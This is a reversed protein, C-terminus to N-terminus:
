PKRPAKTFLGRFEHLENDRTDSGALYQELLPQISFTWLGELPGLAEGNPKWLIQRRPPRSNPWTQNVLFPLDGFFAHGLQYSRGLDPAETIAANLGEINAILHELQETVEDHGVKPKEKAWEAEWIARLAEADFAAEFWLFRRRLAFDLSEVSHDIENMTGIIYLNEPLTLSLHRGNADTAPLEVPQGRKDAEMASFAEGLMASLDTRNIEDLILVHPLPQLGPEPPSGMNNVLDLLIGNRYETQGNEGLQLGTIFASYDIGPHLQLRTVHSQVLEDMRGLRPFYNEAGWEKLASQRLLTEALRQAQYTKGTGPPGYFVIQKKWRLASLPTLSQARENPPRWIHQLTTSYYDREAEGGPLVEELKLRIGYLKKDILEDQSGEYLDEFAHLIQEKHNSSSIREFYEPYLLHCIVHRMADTPEDTDETFERLEWPNDDLLHDRHEPALAKFRQCFDLLNAVQRDQRTNYRSGPNAIAGSFARHLDPDQARDPILWEPTEITENVMQVKRSFGVTTTFSYYIALCEGALLRVEPTAGELQQRWKSEFTGGAASGLLPNKNFREHLDDVNSPSWCGPVSEGHIFSADGRLSHEKWRDVISDVGQRDENSFRAM